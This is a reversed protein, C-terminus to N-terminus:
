ASGSCLAGHAEARGSRGEGQQEGEGRSGGGGLVGGGAGLADGEGGAQAQGGLGREIGDGVHGAAHAAADRGDALDPGVEVGIEFAQGAEIAPASAEGDDADVAALGRRCQGAAEGGGAADLREGGKAQELGPQLAGEAVPSRQAEPLEGGVHFEGGDLAPRVRTLPVKPQGTASAVV